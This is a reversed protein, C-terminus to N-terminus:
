YGDNQIFEGKNTVADLQAQPIPRLVHFPKIYAGADPNHLKVRDILKGTRKLDFWRLQEGALERAREDLIFDLNIAAPLVTMDAEHGPLAARKRVDNLFIASSDLKGLKFQAEAVILYMEALRFLDVNRSSQQDTPSTRNPNAFKRMSFYHFRDKPTGDAGYVDDRDYTKYRYRLSYKQQQDDILGKTVFIATDGVNFKLSEAKLEPNQAEDAATWKPLTKDNNAIWTNQFSATFRGDYREDYLNLLFLTPMWRVNNLGDTLNVTMGPLNAYDMIFVSHGGNNGAGNLAYNNSYTVAWIVEKNKENDIKWLDAFNPLLTFDYNKIVSLAYNSAAQNNGRTLHLRALFAEAVPKTVRGYDPTTTPLNAAAFEVDKFIQEYITAVPTRNATTVMGETPELTFHVDGFTEVLMWYYWGRMFRLEAELVPKRAPNLGAEDIHKLATNVLNIAAYCPVWMNNNVWINDSILAQYTTLPTNPFIGNVGTNGNLAANTWIDTGAELLAFGEEKGYMSRNYTYTANVVSEFGEPTKFLSEVTAGGPNFENEIQKKCSATVVLILLVIKNIHQQM